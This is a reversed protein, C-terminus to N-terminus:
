YAHFSEPAPVRAMRILGPRNQYLSSLKIHLYFTELENTLQNSRSLRIGDEAFLLWSAHISLAPVPLALVQTGAGCRASAEQRIQTPADQWDEFGTSVANAISRKNRPNVATFFSDCPGILYEHVARVRFLIKHLGLGGLASTIRTGAAERFSGRMHLLVLSAALLHGDREREIIFCRGQQVTEKLVDPSRVALSPHANQLYFQGVHSFEHDNAQRLTLSLPSTM